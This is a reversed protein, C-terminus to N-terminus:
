HKSLYAALKPFPVDVTPDDDNENRPIPHTCIVQDDLNQIYYVCAQCTPSDIRAIPQKPCSHCHMSHCCEFDSCVDGEIAPDVKVGYPCYPYSGDSEPVLPIKTAPWVRKISKM